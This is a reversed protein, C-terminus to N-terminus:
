AAAENEKALRRLDERVERLVFRRGRRGVRYSRVQQEEAMKHLTSKGIGGLALCIANATRLKEEDMTSELHSNNMGDTYGMADTNDM